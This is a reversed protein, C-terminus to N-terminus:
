DGASKENGYVGRYQPPLLEAIKRMIDNMIEQRQERTARGNGAPLNFPKGFTITISPHRFFCSTLRRLKESGAVSVPLIPVGTHQAILAAGPLAPTMRADPSRHGEPFMIVSVGKKLWHEAQRIAETDVGGRRVPFAGFNAVWFRSWRNHWLDEKAMFVCKLPLSAAVMPPDAIHLHNCVVLFPGPSTINEQGRVRWTAFPFVLTRILGRGFYYVWHM